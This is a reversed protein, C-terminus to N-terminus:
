GRPSTSRTQRSYKILSYGTSVTWVSQTLVLLPLTLWILGLNFASAEFLSLSLLHFVFGIWASGAIIASVGISQEPLLQHKREILGAMIPWLGNAGLLGYWLLLLEHLDPDPANPTDSLLYILPLLVYASLGVGGLLLMSRSSRPAVPRYLWYLAALTPILALPTILPASVVVFEALDEHPIVFSSGVGIILLGFSVFAGCGGFFLLRRSHRSILNNRSNTM